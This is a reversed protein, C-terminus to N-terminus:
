NAFVVTGLRTTDTQFALVLLDALLRLHDQYSGPAGTPLQMQPVQPQPMRAAREIRQEIDRIAAFYEDLKRRDTAGLRNQLGSSDERVFDLISRRQRERRARDAGSETGFRRDFVQRPQVLKPGTAARRGNACTRATPCTSSRWAIPRAAYPQRRM